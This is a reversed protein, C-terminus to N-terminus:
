RKKDDTIAIRTGAVQIKDTANNAQRVEKAAVKQVTQIRTAVKQAAKSNLNTASRVSNAITNKSSIIKNSASNL